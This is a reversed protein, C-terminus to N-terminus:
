QGSVTGATRGVSGLISKIVEIGLDGGYVLASLMLGILSGSVLSGTVDIIGIGQIMQRTGFSVFSPIQTSVIRGLNSSSISYTVQSATAGTASGGQFTLLYAGAAVATVGIGFGVFGYFLTSTVVNGGIVKAKQYGYVAGISTFTAIIGANVLQEALSSKGSPDTLNVPDGLSYLYSNQSVPINLFGALPDKSTFRGTTPDYHRARLYDLGTVANRSEGVFMAALPTSGSRRLVHGFASYAIRDTIAGAANTVVRVSGTSDTHPVVSSGGRISAILGQGGPVRVHSATVTGNVLEALVESYPRNTDVILRTTVGNETVTERQDDPTYTTRVVSTVGRATVRVETLRGLSDWEYETTNAPGAGRSIMQGNADYLVSVTEAGNTQSVLRDRADYEYSTPGELSDLRSARNGFADLTYAITRDPDNPEDITERILRGGADYEYSTRRGSLEVVSSRRGNADYSTDFRELLGSVGAITQSLLRGRADYVRDEFTGNPFEGRVVRGAADYSFRTHRGDTGTVRTPRDAADYEYGTTGAVTVTSLINGADDYRYEIAQGDPDTKRTLRDRVDYAYSTVAPGEAVTQQQGDPTYTRTLVRGDPHTTRTLRGLLDYDFLTVGGAFDRTSLLQGAADYIRTERENTPLIRATPRGMLDYELRTERGLADTVSVVRGLEDHRYRTVNGLPDVVARLRGLADYQYHTTENLPTTSSRIRGMEDYTSTESRGLADTARTLNGAADYAFTTANGLTDTERVIRNAADFTMASAHGLPDVIRVRNGAEDYQYRTQRGREDIEAIVQGALDYQTQTRPNDAWDDPTLDPLLTAVKQGVTDYDFRTERGGRDIAAILRGVADYRYLEFLGDPDIRRTLRNVGDIEYRTVRGLPDTVRVPNGVADYDTTTTGGAADTVSRVRGEADRTIRTVAAGVGTATTVNSEIRVVDGNADYAASAASGGPGSVGRVTGNVFTVGLSENELSVLGVIQGRTDYRATGRHGRPDAVAALIGAPDYEYRSTNGLADTVSLLDGLNSYTKRTVHGLPNTETLVNGRADYTNRTVRGLPDTLTLRNNSQDYTSRTVAGLADTVAAVNGRADYEVVTPQGLENLNTVLHNDPDYNIQIRHGLADVRGRLRGDPGYEARAGVRGLPDVVTELFHPRDTRYTFQTVNGERDSVRVLDGAASYAYRVAHGSPDIAATIRGRADREFAVATGGPGTVGSESFTLTNGNRDRATTLQGSGNIGYRTGDATTLTYGGFDPSAPNWPIGGPAFLEGYENVLLNNSGASLRSTVGRDPTFRPTAIALGQGGFGPLVRIDPTFTFGERRGGPLTLYVRVGPRFAPYIGIDELGGRPLSTRLDTDRFELRWGFGFDGDRDARLTDYTRAVTLPIGAVPISLDNFSLRFNGLKLDGSVGVTREVTASGGFLDLVELRLVYGDNELLTTDWVGLEGNTVSATGTAVVMFDERDQRRVSLTYRDLDPSAATGIIRVFGGVTAGEALALLATPEGANNNPDNELGTRMNIRGVARGENGAADVAFAQIRGNGPASYPVSFSNDAALAVPVGDLLVRIGVVGVDDGATIRVRAPASFPYLLSPRVIVAVRPATTDLIVDVTFSRMDTEGRGDRVRVTVDRPGLPADPATQWRVRGLADVTMGAPGNIVDFFLPERDPDTALIDYRYVGGRPVTAPPTNTIVPARNPTRVDILFSQVAAADLPDRAVLTVAITGVDAEAPIWNLVGTSPDITLGAPGRVLSFTLTGGDPDTALFTYALLQGVTADAPPVSDAVPPRNVVGATVVIEFAQTSFNNSGDGVRLVVSKLGAQEAGPTWTVDGTAANMSMGAPGGILTFTLPSGGPNNARAPYVYTSGVAATTPPTSAFAPALASGRVTVTWTQEATAGLEDTARVTVSVPGLQGVDPTWRVRGRTPDLSLGAPGAVLEYGVAEPTVLDYAYGRGLVANAPPDSTITVSSRVPRSGVDVSYTQEAEGGRGDSVRVRLTVSGLDAPTWAVVGEADVTMGSPGSSLNFSLIDGDPDAATVRSRYPVGVQASVRPGAVFAPPHNAGAPAVTLNFSHRADGGVGDRVLVTVPPTGLDDALPVWSLRGTVADITMGAPATELSFALATQEADQATIDYRLAIGIAASAPPISTVVPSTNVTVTLTFQQITLRDAGDTATLIVDVPGADGAGASWTLLGSAPDIVAGSPAVAIRYTVPLGDTSPAYAVYTMTGPAAFENPPVSMFVPPGAVVPLSALDIRNPDGALNVIRNPAPPATQVRGAEPVLGIRASKGPLRFSFLGTANTTATPEGESLRGNGDTDVYVTRNAIGAEPEPISSDFVRVEFGDPDDANSGNDHNGLFLRTAGAPVIIQQRIGDATLGDGIFFPQRLQPSLSLYNMGGPVNSGDRFNLTEPPTQGAPSSDDLFVGILGLGTSTIIGSLGNQAATTANSAVGDPPYSRPTTTSATGGAVSFTLVQGPSFTIGSALAPSAAPASDGNGKSGAPLGALWLESTGPVYARPAGTPLFLLDDLATGVTGAGIAGLLVIEVRADTTTAGATWTAAFRSWFNPSGTALDLITGVNEGNVRVQLRAPEAGTRHAWYSFDYSQGPRVPVIQSWAVRDAPLATVLLASGTRSTHEEEFNNGPLARLQLGVTYVGPRQSAAATANFTGAALESTFGIAGSSFDGNVILNDINRRDLKGDGDADNFVTGSVTTAFPETVQITFQQERIGGKGDDVRITVPHFGTSALAPVRGPNDYRAFGTSYYGSHDTPSSDEITIAENSERFRFDLVLGPSDAPVVQLMDASIEAASRSRNWVRVASVIGAVDRSPAIELPRNTYTLPATSIGSGVAQGNVYLTLERTTEDFTLALHYWEQSRLPAPAVLNVDPNAANGTFARLVGNNLQLSWSRVNSPHNDQIWRKGLLTDNIGAIEDFFFWAEATM